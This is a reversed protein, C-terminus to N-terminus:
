GRTPASVHAVEYVHGDTRRPRGMLLDFGIADGTAADLARVSARADRKLATANADTRLRDAADAWTEDVHAPARTFVATTAERAGAANLHMSAVPWLDVRPRGFDAEIGQFGDGGWLFRGMRSTNAWVYVPAYENATAGNVGVESMCYAKLVLGDYEDLAHGREAVRRRILTMDYDRPLAISYRMAIM